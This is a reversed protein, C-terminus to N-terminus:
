GETETTVRNKGSSKASYLLKDAKSIMETLSENYDTTMGVSVTFSISRGDQLKVHSKAIAKVMSDFLRYGNHASINKLIVCFEEGGFRAVIDAGRTNRKLVEAFFKLVEDGVDHGYTDNVQKFNDIDFMALAFSERLQKANQYYEEGLQFFKRRNYVETLFDKNALNLVKKLNEHAEISNNIRCDFEEKTFPKHIFDSAGLKLLHSAIESDEASSIAIISLEEPLYEKRLTVVLDLGNMGPMYYDTIVMAIDSNERMVDIAEFGDCATLLQFQQVELYSVMLERATESDDVILIKYSRNRAIRGVKQAIYAVDEPRSKTVYDIIKKQVMNERVDPSFNGTLVLAPVGKSLAYDVVEGDPADPLTLDLLAIFYVTEGEIFRKAEEFTTACDADFGLKRKIMNVLLMALSRNDEVILVKEKM